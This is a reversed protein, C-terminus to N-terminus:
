QPQYKKYYKSMVFRMFPHYCDKSIHGGDAFSNCYYEATNDMDLIEFNYSGVLKGTKEEWTKVFTSNKLKKQMPLSSQPWVILLPIKENSIRRLITEFFYYQMESERYGSFLWDITRQSTAELVGFDKEVYNEIPSLANGKNDLLFKRTTKGMEAIALFRPDSLRKVAVELHPKNKSVGFLTKGLYFSINDKGFATAYKLVFPLDFSYTLNSGRFVKSSENFQNPDTELLVLDPRVGSDLIKELYYLYYAPTTVASSFNYIDWDPYFDALDKADFYLLRSSGLVIMLKRKKSANEKVLIQLLEKKTEYYIYTFDSKLYSKVSELFFIKDFLFIAIFLFIPYLLFKNKKM